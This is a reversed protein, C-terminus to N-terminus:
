KGLAADLAETAVPRLAAYGTRNPHAADNTFEGPMEGQDTAVASYYDAYELDNDHAYARLWANFQRIKEAPKLDPAWWLKSVPTVSALVVEIDNARALTVMAVINNKLAQMSTLGANGGIDNGGALLHVVRPKLAVVDAEFRLLIQASTQGSIGRNLRTKGFFAPDALGWLETLSDGMFIVDPRETVAANDAHFRCLNAWDQMPKDVSPAAPPPTFKVGPEVFMKVFALMAPDVPKPLPCPNDVMMQTVPPSPPTEQAATESTMLRLLACAAAASLTSFHKM